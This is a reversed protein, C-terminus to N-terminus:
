KEMLKNLLKKEETGTKTIVDKFYDISPDIREKSVLIAAEILAANSRSYLNPTKKKIEYDEITFYMKAFKQPTMEDNKELIEYNDLKLKIYGDANLITPMDYKNSYIIHKNYKKLYCDVFIKADQTINVVAVNTDAINQYTITNIYPKLIVQSNLFEIGM